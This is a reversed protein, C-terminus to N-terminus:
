LINQTREVAFAPIIIKGRNVKGQEILNRLENYMEELSAHTRNGYTSELMLYDVDGVIVPDKLIPVHKRGLDGSFLVRSNETEILVQSSGLIHGADYFTVKVGEVPQFSTSYQRPMFQKLAAEVDTIKYLPEKLPLNQQALKKNLYRIDNEQIHASDELLLAAIDATASTCYIQGRFGSRVLSPLNGSHDLHAHSLVAAQIDKPKFSFTRNIREAEARHGQYLGCEVLFKRKNTEFLYQSGTVTRAAGIFTLYM